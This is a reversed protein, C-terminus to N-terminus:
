DLKRYCDDCFRIEQLSNWRPGPIQYNAMICPNDSEFSHHVAGLSHGIEHLVRSQFNADNPHFINNNKGGFFSNNSAIAKRNYGKGHIRGYDGKLDLSTLLLYVDKESDPLLKLIADAPWYGPCIKIGKPRIEGDYAHGEKFKERVQPIEFLAELTDELSGRFWLKRVILKMM